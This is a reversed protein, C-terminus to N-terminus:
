VRGGEEEEEEEEEREEGFMEVLSFSDGWLLSLFLFLFLLCDSLLM